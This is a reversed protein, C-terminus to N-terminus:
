KMVKYIYICIYIVGSSSELLFPEQLAGTLDTGMKEEECFGGLLLLLLKKEWYEMCTADREWAWCLWAKSKGQLAPLLQGDEGSISYSSSNAVACRKVGPYGWGNGHPLPWVFLKKNQGCIVVISLNIAVFDNQRRRCSVVNANTNGQHLSWRKDLMILAMTFVSFSAAAEPKEAKVSCSVFFLFFWM